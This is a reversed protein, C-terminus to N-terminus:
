KPPATQSKVALLCNVIRRFRLDSSSTAWDEFDKRETALHLNLEIDAEDIYLFKVYPSREASASAITDLRAASQVSRLPLADPASAALGLVFAAYISSPHACLRSFWEALAAGGGDVKLEVHQEPMGANSTHRKLLFLLKGVPNDSM